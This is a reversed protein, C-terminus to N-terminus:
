LPKFGELRKKLSARFGADQVGSVKPAIETFKPAKMTDALTDTFSAASGIGLDDTYRDLNVNTGLNALLNMGDGSM